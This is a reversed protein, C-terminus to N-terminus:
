RHDNFEKNLEATIGSILTIKRECNSCFICYGDSYSWYMDSGNITRHYVQFRPQKKPTTSPCSMRTCICDCDTPFFCNWDIRLYTCLPRSGLVFSHFVVVYKQLINIPQRLHLFVKHNHVKNNRTQIKLRRLHTQVHRQFTKKDPLLM